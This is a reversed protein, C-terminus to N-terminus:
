LPGFSQLWTDGLLSCVASSLLGSGARHERRTLSLCSVERSRQRDGHFLSKPLAPAKLNSGPKLPLWPPGVSPRLPGGM